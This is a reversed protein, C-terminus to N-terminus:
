RNNSPLVVNGKIADWLVKGPGVAAGPDQSVSYVLGGTDPMTTNNAATQVFNVGGRAATSAVTEEVTTKSQLLAVPFIAAIMIFGIGLIMVAFLVESFNFGTQRRRWGTRIAHLRTVNM